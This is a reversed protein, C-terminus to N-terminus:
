YGFIDELTLNTVPGLTKLFDMDLDAPDGLIGYVYTRDKVWKQQTAVLSNIDLSGLSEFVTKALPETLGLDRASLYSNLARAGVSRQTRLTSEINSKAIDFGAESVPM